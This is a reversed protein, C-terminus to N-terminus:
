RLDIVKTGEPTIFQFLEEKLGSDTQINSFTIVTTEGQKDTIEVKAPLYESTFYISIENFNLEGSKPRLVMKRNEESISCRDPYETIVKSISLMSIDDERYNSVIVKKDKHSYSWTTKGDTILTLASLEVRSKNEKKFYYTGKSKIVKGSSAKFSLKLDKLSQFKSQAKTLLEGANVEAFLVFHIIIFFYFFRKNMPM